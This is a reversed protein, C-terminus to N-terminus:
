ARGHRLAKVSDAVESKVGEVFAEDAEFAHPRAHARPRPPLRHDGGRRRPAQRHAGRGDGYQRRRLGRGRRGLQPAQGTEVDRLLTSRTSCRAQRRAGPHRRSQRDHAGIAVFCRTSAARPRSAGAVDDVKHNCRIAVGMAEIRRIEQMLRRAASPLRPHRLAAHRGARAPMAFRSRTASRRLHYAASLGGPGAGVVLVRKGTPPADADALGERRGPRRPLTRGCPHVRGTSDQATAARKALTIASAAMCRRSRTTASWRGGPREFDGAQAQALWAQINEGAPCAHNCPPLHDIWAPYQWRQPGAGKQITAQLVPTLDELIFSM